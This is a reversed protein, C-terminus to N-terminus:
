PTVTVTASGVAGQYTAFLNTQGVHLATVLGSASVSAVGPAATAWTVVAGTVPNGNQDKVTATLQATPATGALSITNASPTVTVQLSGLTVNIPVTGNLPTLIMSITPNTGAQVDITVAGTHTEVGGTDFAHMTITRHTGASLTITGTAVGNTIPINFVLPTTIDPATVQAVVTAV